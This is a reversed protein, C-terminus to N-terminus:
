GKNCVGKNCGAWYTSINTVLTPISVSPLSHVKPRIAYLSSAVSHLGM